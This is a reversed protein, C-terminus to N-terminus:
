LNKAWHFTGPMLHTQDQPFAKFGPLTQNTWKCLLLRNEPWSSGYTELNVALFVIIVGGGRGEGSVSCTCFRGATHFRALRSSAELDTGM